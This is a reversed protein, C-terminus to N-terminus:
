NSTNPSVPRVPSRNVTRSPRLLMGRDMGRQLCDHSFHSMEGCSYYQVKSPDWVQRLPSSGPSVARVADLARNRNARCWMRELAQQNDELIKKMTEQNDKLIREFGKSQLDLQDAWTVKPMSGVVPIARISFDEAETLVRVEPKM